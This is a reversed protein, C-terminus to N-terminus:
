PFLVEKARVYANLPSDQIDRTNRFGLSEYFRSLREDEDALLVCMRVHRYRELCAEVLRTGIGQRQHEPVVLVDQLYFVSVDDSLGRALGVLNGGVWATVVFSSNCLARTLDAHRQWVTCAKWGVANYLAILEQWPIDCGARLEFSSAM